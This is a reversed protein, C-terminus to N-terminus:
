LTGRRVKNISSIIEIIRFNNMLKIKWKTEVNSFNGRCWKLNFICESAVENTVGSRNTTLEFM